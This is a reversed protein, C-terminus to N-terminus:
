SRSMAHLFIGTVVIRYIWEYTGKLPPTTAWAGKLHFLPAIVNDWAVGKFTYLAFPLAFLVIMLSVFWWTKEVEATATISAEDVAAGTTIEAQKTNFIGGVLGAVVSLIASIISLM